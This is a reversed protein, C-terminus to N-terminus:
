ADGSCRAVEHNTRALLASYVAITEDVVRSVHFRERSDRRAVKALGRRRDCSRHLQTLAEALASVDRRPVLIGNEGDRLVEAAGECDSSVCPVGRAMAELIVRPLGERETSAVVLVDIASYFWTMEHVHGLFRVRDMLAEREVQANYERRMGGEGAIILRVDLGNRVMRGIAAILVGQGKEATLRGACGVTFAGDSRRKRKADDPPIVIGNLIVKTRLCRGRVTQRAYDAAASSVAVCRANLARLCARYIARSVVSRLGRTAFLPPTDRIHFVVSSKARSLVHAIAVVPLTPWLHIHLVDPSLQRLVDALSGACKVLSILSGRTYTLFRTELSLDGQYSPQPEASLVCLQARWHARRNTECVLEAAGM